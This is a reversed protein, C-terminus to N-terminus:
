TIVTPATRGTHRVIDSLQLADAILDALAAQTEQEHRAPDPEYREIYIRITAGATGTGSLRFVIRSGDEFLIRLGQRKSDSGDVPDHYAFDDATAVVGARMRRGPLGPLADRLAAMLAEAGESAVEEYDHRSYYNRGYTAWHERVIADV